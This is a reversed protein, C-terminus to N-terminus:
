QIYHPDSYCVEFVLLLQFPYIKPTRYDFPKTKLHYTLAKTTDIQFGVLISPRFSYSFDWGKSFQGNLIAAMQETKLPQETNPM